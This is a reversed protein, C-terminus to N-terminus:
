RIALNTFPLSFFSSRGRLSSVALGMVGPKAEPLSRGARRPAARRKSNQRDGFGRTESAFDVRDERASYATVATRTLMRICMHLPPLRTIPKEALRVRPRALSRSRDTPLPIFDEPKHPMPNRPLARPTPLLSPPLLQDRHHDGLASSRKRLAGFGGDHQM